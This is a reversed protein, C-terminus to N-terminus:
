IKLLRWIVKGTPLEEQMIFGSLKNNWAVVPFAKDPDSTEFPKCEFTNDKLNFIFFSSQLSCNLTSSNIVFNTVPLKNRRYVDYFIIKPGNSAFTPKLEPQSNSNFSFLEIYKKENADISIIKKDHQLIVKKSSQDFGVFKIDGDFTGLWKEAFGGPSILYIENQKGSNLICLVGDEVWLLDSIFKRDRYNPPQNQLFSYHKVYKLSQTDLFVITHDGYRVAINRSDPSWAHIYPFSGIPDRPLYDYLDRETFSKLNITLDNKSERSENLYFIVLGEFAGKLPPESSTYFLAKHSDPSWSIFESWGGGIGRCSFNYARTPYQVLGITINEEDRPNCYTKKEFFSNNPSIDLLLNVKHNESLVQLWDLEYLPPIVQTYQYLVYILIGGLSVVGWFSKSNKKM